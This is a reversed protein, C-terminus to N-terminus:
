KSDILRVPAATDRRTWRLGNSDTFQVTAHDDAFTRIPTGTGDHYWAVARIEASASLVTPAVDYLEDMQGFDYDWSVVDPDDSEVKKIRVDFVPSASENRVTVSVSGTLTDRFDCAVTILRAQAADRDDREAAVAVLDARRWRRERIALWLAVIVAAATAVAGGAQGIASVIDTWNPVDPTAPVASM